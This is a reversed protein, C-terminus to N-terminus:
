SELHAPVQNAILHLFNQSQNISELRFAQDAFLLDHDEAITFASHDCEVRRGEVRPDIADAHAAIEAIPVVGPALRDVAIHKSQELLEAVSLDGTQDRGSREQDFRRLARLDHNRRSGAPRRPPKCTLTQIDDLCLDLFRAPQDGTQAWGSLDLQDGAAGM